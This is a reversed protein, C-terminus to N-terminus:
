VFTTMKEQVMEVRGSEQDCRAWCLEVGLMVLACASTFDGGPEQLYGLFTGLSDELIWRRVEWWWGRGQESM